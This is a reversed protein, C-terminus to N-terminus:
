NMAENVADLFLRTDLFYNPFMKRLWRVSEVSVLVAEAGPKDRIEQEVRLYDNSARELEEKGYGGVTVRGENPELLLLFYHSGRASPDELTELASGYSELRARVDLRRGLSRIARSLSTRSRPTGAVLPMKERLAIASGMLTFFSLWDASGRSAKLAQELFTGVTEVATAWAHQLRSRLQVEILLNNYTPSKDSFYRYVLHIGRYGSAKPASIYDDHRVLRHKLAGRLYMRELRRVRGVTGVVARCGGIDQMRSLNMKSFRELKLRISSLRKLRQAVSGGNDVEVARQRLGMQFTNLPFSHSSRWNNIVGLAAQLESSSASPSALVRGAADIAGTGFAPRVWAM